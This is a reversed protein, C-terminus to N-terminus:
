KINRAGHVIKATSSILQTSMSDALESSVDPLNRLNIELLTQNHSRMVWLLTGDDYIGENLNGKQDITDDRLLGKIECRDKFDDFLSQEDATLHGLHGKLHENQPLHPTPQVTAM